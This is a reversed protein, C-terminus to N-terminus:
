RLILIAEDSSRPWTQSQQEERILMETEQRAASLLQSLVGHYRAAAGQELTKLEALTAQLFEIQDTNM